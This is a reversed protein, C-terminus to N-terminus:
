DKLTKEFIILNDQRDPDWRFGVINFEMAIAMHLIARHQNHCEMRIYEYGHEAAWACQAEHIQSAIGERRSDPLVGTLWGFFVTPKLEFGTSFGVPQGDVNAVLLLSNYRGRLRRQFFEVDHPPRFIENYLDAIMPLEGPGVVVVDAHAM